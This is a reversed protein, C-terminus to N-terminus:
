AHAAPPLGAALAGTPRINQNLHFTNDPDYRDKLAQLRAYRRAGFAAVM